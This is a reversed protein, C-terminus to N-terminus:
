KQDIANKLGRSTLELAEALCGSLTDAAELHRKLVTIEVLRNNLSSVERILDQNEKMLRVNEDSLGKNQFVLKDIEECEDQSDSKWVEIDSELQEIIGRLTKITNEAEESPKAQEKLEEIAELLDDISQPELVFSQEMNVPNVLGMYKANQAAVLKMNAIAKKGRFRSEEKLNHQKIDEPIETSIDTIPIKNM